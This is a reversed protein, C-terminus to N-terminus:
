ESSGLEITAVCFKRLPCSGLRLESGGVDLAILSECRADDCAVVPLLLCRLMAMHPACRAVFQEFNRRKAEISLPDM